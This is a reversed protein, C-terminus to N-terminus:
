LRVHCWSMSALILQLQAKPHNLISVVALDLVLYRKHSEHTRLKSYYM